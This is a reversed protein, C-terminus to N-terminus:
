KKSKKVASIKGTNAKKYAHILADKLVNKKVKNLEVFTAGMLGWKNPVPFIVTNDYASFVSQDVPSLMLCARNKEEDLTAFIKKNVRFSTIEFHPLEIAEPFSLAIKRFSEISIMTTVIFVSWILWLM